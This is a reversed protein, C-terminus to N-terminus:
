SFSMNIYATETHTDTGLSKWVVLAHVCLVTCICGVLVPTLLQKPHRAVNGAYSLQVLWM